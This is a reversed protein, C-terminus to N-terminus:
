NQIEERSFKCTRLSFGFVNSYEQYELVIFKSYSVHVPDDVILFTM